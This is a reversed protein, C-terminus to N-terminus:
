TTIELEDWSEDCIIWEFAHHRWRSIISTRRIINDELNSFVKGNVVFAENDKSDSAIVNLPTLMDAGFTSEIIEEITKESFISNKAEVCRWDWLMAIDRKVLVDKEDKMKLTEVLKELSHAQGIELVSHFDDVVFNDYSSLEKVKGVCWLLPEIAEYQLQEKLIKDVEGKGVELEFLKVESKTMFKSYGKSQLWSYIVKRQTEKQEHTYVQGGISVRELSCRDSICLLIIARIIIEDKSKM